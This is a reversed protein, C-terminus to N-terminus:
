QITVASITFSASGKSVAVGHCAFYGGGFCYGINTIHSLIGQFISPDTITNGGPDIMIWSTQVLPIALINDGPALTRTINSFLRYGNSDLLLRLTSNGDPTNGPSDHVFAPADGAITYTLSYTEAPNIAISTPIEVYSDWCASASPCQQVAFCARQTAQPAARPSAGGSSKSRVLSRNHPPRPPHHLPRSTTHRLRPRPDVAVGPLCYLLLCRM